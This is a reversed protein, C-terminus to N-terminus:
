DKWGFMSSGGVFRGGTLVSPQHLNAKVLLGVPLSDLHFGHDRHDFASKTVVDSRSTAPSFNAFESQNNQSVVEHDKPARYKEVSGTLVRKQTKRTPPHDVPPEPAALHGAGM